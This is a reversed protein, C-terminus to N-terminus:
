RPAGHRGAGPAAGHRRLLLRREGPRVRDLGAPRQPVAVPAGAVVQAGDLALEVRLVESPRSGRRRLRAALAGARRADVGGGRAPLARRDGGLWVRHILVYSPPLNLKCRWRHLGAQRPDSIRAAQRAALRPQLPVVDHAPPSSSPTSTTWCSSPTSSAGDAQRLGRGAPRRARRRRRRRARHAAAARDRDAARRAAPRGRRLRPRRAPRGATMRFNGPHPDAHLLRAPRARVFLFRLYLLGAHDREEQTGEAIVESLPRGELWESVLVTATGHSWTRPRRLGPRREFATPSRRSRRRGRPPLRAGRRGARAARRAAAQRRPRPRAGGFVRALRGVQNLDSM